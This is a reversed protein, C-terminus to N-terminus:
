RRLGRLDSEDDLLAALQDALGFVDLVPPGPTAAPATRGAFPADDVVTSATPTGALRARHASASGLSSPTPLAAPVAASGGIHGAGSAPLGPPRPRDEVRPGLAPAGLLDPAARGATARQDSWALRIPQPVSLPLGPTSGPTVFGDTVSPTVLAPSDAGGRQAAVLPVLEPASSTPASGDRSSWTPEAPASGPFDARSPHESGLRQPRDPEPSHEDPETLGIRDLLNRELTRLTEAVTTSAPGRQGVVISTWEGGVADGPAEATLLDVLDADADLM